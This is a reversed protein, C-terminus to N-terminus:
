RRSTSSFSIQLMSMWFGTRVNEGSICSASEESAWALPSCPPGTDSPLSYLSPPHSNGGSFIVNVACGVPARSESNVTTSKHAAIQLTASVVSM